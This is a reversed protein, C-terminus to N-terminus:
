QDLFEPNELVLERLRVQIKQVEDAYGEDWTIWHSDGHIQERHPIGATTLESKFMEHLRPAYSVSRDIPLFDMAVDEVVRLVQSHESKCYRLSADAETKNWIGEENARASVAHMLERSQLKITRSECKRKVDSFCGQQLSLALMLLSLPLLLPSPKIMARTLSPRLDSIRALGPDLRTVSLQM